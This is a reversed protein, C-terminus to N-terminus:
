LIVRVKLPGEWRHVVNLTGERQGIAYRRRLVHADPSVGPGGVLMRHVAGSWDTNRWGAVMKPDPRQFTVVGDADAPWVWWRHDTEEFGFLFEKMPHPCELVGRKAIRSIEAAAALPDTVHELVHCAILWDFEGDAFPTRECIDGVHMRSGAPRDDPAGRDVVDIVANARPYYRRSGPGVECVQWADPITMDGMIRLWSVPDHAHIEPKRFRLCFAPYLRGALPPEEGDFAFGYEEVLARLGERTYGHHHYSYDDRRSGILHRLLFRRREPDAEVALAEVTGALDPVDLRLVGGPKLAYDCEKLVTRAETRSFHEFVQRMLIEDANQAGFPLGRLVDAHVDCVVDAETVPGAAIEALTVAQRAYYADGDSTRLAQVLDNRASALHSRPGPLNVNVWEGPTHGGSALYVSGAGLHIKLPM